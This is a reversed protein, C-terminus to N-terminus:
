PSGPVRGPDLQYGDIGVHEDVRVPAFRPDAVRRMREHDHSASPSRDTPSGTAMSSRTGSRRSSGACRSPILSGRGFPCPALEFRPSRRRRVAPNALGVIERDSQPFEYTPRVDHASDHVIGADSGQADSVPDLSQERPVPVERQKGLQPRMIREIRCVDRDMSRHISTRSARGIPCPGRGYRIALGSSAPVM